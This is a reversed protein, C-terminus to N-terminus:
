SDSSRLAESRPFRSCVLEQSSAVSVVAFPEAPAIKPGTTEVPESRQLDGFHAPSHEESGLFSGLDDM